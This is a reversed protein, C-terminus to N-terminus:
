DEKIPRYQLAEAIHNKTIEDSNELDAITQSLKIIKMYVRASIDLKEAASDLFEKVSSDLNINTKIDRNNMSGNTKDQNFRKKQLLRAKEVRQKITSSTERNYSKDLLNKHEINDVTVHIDIRDLIPGSIKKQYRQLELPTCTCPKSSGYFGCPCPNKTAVLLFKAPYTVSDKARAVTVTGDELPQRLSEIASRRFEPLEDLM